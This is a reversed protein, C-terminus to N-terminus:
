RYSPPQGLLHALFGPPAAGLTPTFAGLCSLLGGGPTHRGTGPLRDPRAAAQSAADTFVYYKGIWSPRVIKVTIWAGVSLRRGRFRSTLDLTGHTPCTRATGQHCPRRSKVATSQAKFPCGRGHCAVSVTTNLAGNVVLANVSTYSRTYRFTWQMTATITGRPRSSPKVVQMPQSPASSGTFNVDGGYVATIGHAGPQRYSVTCTAGGRMLSQNVCATIPHGGDFFQVAGTPEVPGPRSAPPIVTATYTTTQGVQTTRSVDLRTSTSDRGVIIRSTASQSPTLHSGGSPVFAAGLQPTSVAFSVDCTATATQGLGRLPEDMCGDLPTGANTFTITGSPSADSIASTVVAILTIRQNVVPATPTALLGTTTPIVISATPASTATGGRGGTGAAQEQVVIAHGADAATLTYTQGNADAIAVCGNGSSDCRNWQYSLATPTTTWTAPHETLTQGAEPPGSITPPSTNSLGVVVATVVETPSSSAPASTGAGNTARERVVIRHGVDAATLQYTQAVADAIAACHSGASDCRMWRYSFTTPNGSWSGHHETLTQGQEPVGTITPPAINTPAPAAQAPIALSWLSALTAM